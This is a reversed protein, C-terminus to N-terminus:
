STKQSHIATFFLPQKAAVAVFHIHALALSRSLSCVFPMREAVRYIISLSLPSVTIGAKGDCFLVRIISRM